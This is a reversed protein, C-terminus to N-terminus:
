VGVSCTIDTCGHFQSPAATPPEVATAASIRGRWWRQPQAALPDQFLQLLIERPQQPRQEWHFVLHVIFYPQARPAPRVLRGCRNTGTSFAPGTLVGVIGSTFRQQRQKSHPFSITAGSSPAPVSIRWAPRM